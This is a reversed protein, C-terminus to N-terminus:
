KLISRKFENFFAANMPILIEDINVNFSMLWYKSYFYVLFSGTQYLCNLGLFLDM